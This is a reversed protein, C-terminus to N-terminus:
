QRAAQSEGARTELQKRVFPNAPLRRHWAEWIARRLATLRQAEELNGNRQHLRSLAEYLRSVGSAHSLDNAPDPRSAMIRDLLEQYISAARRADGTDALHDASARLISEAEDGFAIRETPYDRTERLIQLAAGVRTGAEDGRSLRRLVYASAALLQAEGRRARTNNKVQRIRMLAHDYIALARDPERHRVVGALDRGVSAFRLRALADHPDRTALEEVINYAQQLSLVAEDPRDLSNQDDGGLIVGQRWLVNYRNIMEVSSQPPVRDTERRAETIAQLAGPLDGSLRLADAILSLANGRHDVPAEPPVIEIAARAYRVCDDYRHLNKHMLAINMLAKSGAQAELLSVAGLEQFRRLRSIADGAHALADADRKDTDALIMRDVATEALLLWASRNDPSARVVDQFLADAKRLSEKAEAHMGLNPQSPVGQARALKVYAHALEFKLEADKGVESALAELYEQSIRVIGQRVKTSGPLERMARDLDLVNNALQRVQQFRREAVARERNVAYLGASLTVVVALVSASAARYRRLLRRSRYWLDGSRAQVPRWELFAQVDNAFAEVSPYRESPEARLAKRLIYGVDTPLDRPLHIPAHGTDDGTVDRLSKGVLMKYLVAGLSYVDTATTGGEGRLQEPSAYNPTLFRDVTKTRDGPVDLLKAIGFDLLKPQGSADVLINSPKIDRHIVLHRHAYSVADCVREFLSLRARLDLRESYADIPEGDVFEMVLFPQGDGGRGVDLLRAIGPHNMNALLQREILFRELWAARETGGHLVKVAVHQQIEGDVREALYVSSMGGSGVLRVGRYPGWEKTSAQRHILDSTAEFIAGTLQHDHDAAFSLLSEVEDSIASPIQRQEFVKRRESASLESLEEFLRRVVPNM